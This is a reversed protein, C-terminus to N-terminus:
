YRCETRIVAELQELDLQAGVLERENIKVVPIDVHYKELLQDDTYIDISEIEIPYEYALLELLSYAEDCLLCQEKTYFIVKQLITM